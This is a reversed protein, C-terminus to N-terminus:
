NLSARTVEDITTKSLVIGEAFCLARNEYPPDSKAGASSLSM